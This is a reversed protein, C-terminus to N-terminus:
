MVKVLSIQGNTLSKYASTNKQISKYRFPLSM